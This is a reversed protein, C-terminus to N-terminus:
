PKRTGAIQYARERRMPQRYGPAPLGMLLPWFAMGMARALRRREAPVDMCLSDHRECVQLARAYLATQITRRLGGRVIM